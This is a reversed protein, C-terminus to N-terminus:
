VVVGAAYKVAGFLLLAVFGLAAALADRRVARLIVSYPMRSGLAALAPQDGYLFPVLKSLATGARHLVTDIM